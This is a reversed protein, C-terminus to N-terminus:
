IMAYAADQIAVIVVTLHYQLDMLLRKVQKVTKAVFLFLVEMGMPHQANISLLHITIKLLLLIENYM